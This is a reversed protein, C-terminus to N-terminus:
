HPTGTIQKSKEIIYGYWWFDIDKQCKRGAVFLNQKPSSNKKQTELGRDVWNSSPFITYKVNQVSKKKKSLAM